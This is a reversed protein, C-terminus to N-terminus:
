DLLKVLADYDRREYLSGYEEELRRFAEIVETKRESTM